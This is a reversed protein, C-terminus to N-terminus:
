AAARAANPMKALLAANMARSLFRAYWRLSAASARTDDGRKDDGLAVRRFYRTIADHCETRCKVDVTNPSSSSMQPM